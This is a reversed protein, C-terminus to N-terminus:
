VTIGSEGEKAKRLTFSFTSGEGLKSNVTLEGGHLKVLQQSLFLGLGLGAVAPSSYTRIQYLREFIQSLQEPRIGVGTDSISIMVRDSNTVDEEVKVMVSGAKPTFKLANSLLNNLVQRIRHQDMFASLDDALLSYQLTVSKSQFLPVFSTIVKPILTALDDPQPIVSLKGTELRTADFLDNINQRLSDCCGDVIELYEQQDKTLPGALGELIIEVFETAATLPTKLEHALVHYFRQIEENKRLLEANAQELEHHHQDLNKQLQSKEVAHSIARELSEPSMLQKPIYDSAGSRMAEMVIGEAGQGTLMIVPPHSGQEHIERLLDLGSRSGLHYDLLDIDYDEQKIRELGDEYCSVWDMEFKVGPIDSLVARTIVADDESDEVLLVRMTGTASIM